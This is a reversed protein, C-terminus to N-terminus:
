SRAPGAVRFISYIPDSQHRIPNTCLLAASHRRELSTTPTASSTSPVPEPLIGVTSNIHHLDVIHKRFQRVDSFCRSCDKEGCKYIHPDFNLPCEKRIHRVLQSILDFSRKCDRRVVM